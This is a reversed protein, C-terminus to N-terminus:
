PRSGSGWRCRLRCRTAYSLNDTQPKQTSHESRTSFNWTSQLQNPTPTATDQALLEVTVIEEYNFMRRPRVHLNTTENVVYVKGLFAPKVFGRTIGDFALQGNVTLRLAELDLREGPAATIQVTIEKSLSVNESNPAPATISLTPTTM